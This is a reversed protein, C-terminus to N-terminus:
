MRNRELVGAMEQRVVLRELSGPANSSGEEGGPGETRTWSALGGWLVHESGEAVYHRPYAGKEFVLRRTWSCRPFLTEVNM